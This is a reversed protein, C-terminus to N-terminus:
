NLSKEIITSIIAAITDPTTPTDSPSPIVSVIIIRITTITFAIM